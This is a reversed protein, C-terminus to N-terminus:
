RQERDEKEIREVKEAIEEATLDGVNDVGVDILIPYIHRLKNLKKEDGNRKWTLELESVAISWKDAITPPIYALLRKDREKVPQLKTKEAESTSGGSTESSSDQSGGNSSSTNGEATNQSDAQQTNATDEGEGTSEDGTSSAEEESERAQEERAQEARDQQQKMDDGSIGLDLGGGDEEGESM